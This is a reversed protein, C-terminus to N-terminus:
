ARRRRWWGAALGLASLAGWVALSTPEPTANIGMDSNDTFDWTGSGTDHVVGNVLSVDHLTDPTGDLRDALVPLYIVSPGFVDDFVSVGSGESGLIGAFGVTAFHFFDTGAPDFGLTMEYSWSAATFLPTAAPVTDAIEPALPDTTGPNSIVVALADATTAGAPALAPDVTAKLGPGVLDDVTYGAVLSPGLVWGGLPSETPDVTLAGTIVAAFAIVIEDGGLSASPDGSIDLDSVSIFGYIVDGVSFDDTPDGPTGSGSGDVDYVSARSDDEFGDEFGDFSMHSGLISAEAPAAMLGILALLILLRRM